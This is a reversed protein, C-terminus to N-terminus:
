CGLVRVIILSDRGAHCAAAPKALGAVCHRLRGAGERQVARFEATAAGADSIARQYDSGRAEGELAGGFEGTDAPWDLLAEYDELIRERLGQGRRRGRPRSIFCAATGPALKAAASWRSPSSHHGNGRRDSAGLNARRVPRRGHAARGKRAGPALVTRLFNKGRIDYVWTTRLIIYPCGSAAIVQEGELKTRGYVNLPGPRTTERRLPRAQQRRLVYDTSYHILLAGSRALEEAM